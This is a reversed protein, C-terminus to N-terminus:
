YRDHSEGSDSSGATWMDRINRCCNIICQLAAVLSGIVIILKVPWVPAMFDGQAGEYENITWAHTFIPISYVFLAALLLAGLLYYFAELARKFQPFRELRSLIIDSRTLRGVKIAHSLQLFVCAVITMGVIETVGRVPKNFLSRGIIDANILVLLVFIWGTGISNLLVVLSGFSIRYRWGKAPAAPDIHSNDGM